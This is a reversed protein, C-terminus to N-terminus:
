VGMGLRRKGLLSAAGQPLDMAGERDENWTSLMLKMAGKIVEPVRVPPSATESYRGQFTVTVAGSQCRTSPWSQGYARWIIPTRQNGDFVYLTRDLTQTAGNTDVYVVSIVRGVDGLPLEIAQCEPPLRYGTRHWTYSRRVDDYRHHPHFSDVTFEYVADTLCTELEDEAKERAQTIAGGLWADLHMDGLSVNLHNLAEELSLPEATPQTIIRLSM